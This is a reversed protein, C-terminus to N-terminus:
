AEDEEAEDRLEELSIGRDLRWQVEDRSL